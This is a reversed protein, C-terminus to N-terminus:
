AVGNTVQPFACGTSLATASFPFRSRFSVSRGGALHSAPNGAISSGSAVVEDAGVSRGCWSDSDSDAAPRTPRDGSAFGYDDDALGARRAARRPASGARALLAAGRLPVGDSRDGGPAGRQSLTRQEAQGDDNQLRSVPRNSPARACMPPIPPLRGRSQTKLTQCCRFAMEACGLRDPCRTFCSGDGRAANRATQNRYETDLRSRTRTCSSAAPSSRDGYM